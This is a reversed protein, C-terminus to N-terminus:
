YGSTLLRRLLTTPGSSPRYTAGLAESTRSMPAPRLRVAPLPQAAMLAM